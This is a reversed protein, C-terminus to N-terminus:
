PIHNKIAFITSSKHPSVNLFMQTTEYCPHLSVYLSVDIKRCKVSIKCMKTIGGHHHSHLKEHRNQILFIRLAVDISSSWKKKSGQKRLLM